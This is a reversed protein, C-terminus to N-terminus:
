RACGVDVQFPNWLIGLIVQGSAQVESTSKCAELDKKGKGLAVRASEILGKGIAGDLVFSGLSGLEITSSAALTAHHEGYRRLLDELKQPDAAKDILLAFDDMEQDVVARAIFNPKEAWARLTDIISAIALKTTNSTAPERQQEAKSLGSTALLLISDLFSAVAVNAAADANCGQNLIDQVDPSEAMCKECAGKVDNLMLANQVKQQFEMMHLNTSVAAGANRLVALQELFESPNPPKTMLTLLDICATAIDKKQELEALEAQMFPAAKSGGIKSVLSQMIKVVKRGSKLKDGVCEDLEKKQM